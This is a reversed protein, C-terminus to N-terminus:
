YVDSKKMQPHLRTKELTRLGGRKRFGKVWKHSFHLNEISKENVYKEDQRTCKAATIIIAYSYTVNVIIRM